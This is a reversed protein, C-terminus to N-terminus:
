AGSPEDSVLAEFRDSAHRLWALTGGVAIRLRENVLDDVLEDRSGPVHDAAAGVQGSGELCRQELLELVRLGVTPSRAFIGLQCALLEYRQREIGILAQLRQEYSHVGARTARCHPKPQRSGDAGVDFEEILGRAELADLASYIHSPSSIPQLAGYIREYRRYIEHGYSPREIVLSLVLWNIESSM